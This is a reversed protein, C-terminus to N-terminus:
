DFEPKVRMTIYTEGLREKTTDISGLQALSRDIIKSKQFASLHETRLLPRLMEEPQLTKIFSKYMRTAEQKSKPVFASSPNEANM